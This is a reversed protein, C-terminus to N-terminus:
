NSIPMIGIKVDCQCDTFSRHNACIFTLSAVSKSRVVSSSVGTANITFSPIQFAVIDCQVRYAELDLTVLVCMHNTLCHSAATSIVYSRLDAPGTASTGGDARPRQTNRDASVTM